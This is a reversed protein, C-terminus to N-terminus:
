EGEGAKAASGALHKGQEIWDASDRLTGVIGDAATRVSFRMADVDYAKSKDFFRQKTEDAWRRFAAVIAAREESRGREEAARSAAREVNLAVIIRQVLRAEARTISVLADPKMRANELSRFLDSKLVEEHATLALPEADTLPPPTPATM